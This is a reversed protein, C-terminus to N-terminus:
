NRRAPRESEDLVFRIPVKVRVPQPKGNVLYPQFRAVKVAEIAAEDLAPHGSSKEVVIISPLGNVDVTVDILTSGEHGAQRSGAPYVPRPPALVALPLAPHTAPSANQPAPTRLAPPLIRGSYEKVCTALRKTAEEVGALNVTFNRQNASVELPRDSKLEEFFEPAARFTMLTPTRATGIFTFTRGGIAFTASYTEGAKLGWSPVEASMGRSGSYGQGLYLIFGDAFIRRIGCGDFAPNTGRTTARLQWPGVQAVSDPFTDASATGVAIPVVAMSIAMAARCIRWFVM